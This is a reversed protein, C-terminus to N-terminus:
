FYNKHKLFYNKWTLTKIFLKLQRALQLYFQFESFWVFFM